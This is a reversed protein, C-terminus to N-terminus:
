KIKLPIGAQMVIVEDAASAIKQNAIGALDRFRRGLVNDPILGGGVDNSVVIITEPQRSLGAAFERIKKEIAGDNLNDMLLNSIWLGLCDILIVDYSKAAFLVAKLVERPGELVKWGAPRSLKHKKIRDKMEKDFPIATAIFAKKGKSAKALAVAHSSKGSRAGGLIFILKRM